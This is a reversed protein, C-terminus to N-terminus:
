LADMDGVAESESLDDKAMEKAFNDAKEEEEELFKEFAEQPDHKWLDSFHNFNVIYAMCEEEIGDLNGTIKSM